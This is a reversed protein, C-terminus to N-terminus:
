ARRLDVSSFVYMCTHVKQPKSSKIPKGEKQKAKRPKAKTLKAKAKAPPKATTLELWATNLDPDDTKLLRILKQLMRVGYKDQWCKTPKRAFEVMFGYLYKQCDPNCLLQLLTALARKGPVETVNRSADPLKSDLETVDAYEKFEPDEDDEVEGMAADAARQV